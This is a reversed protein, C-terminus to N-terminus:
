GVEALIMRAVRLAGQGDVLRQGAAGMSDRAETNSLLSLLANGISDVIDNDNARGVVRLFGEKAFVQLQGDQNSAVRVAVTPCGVCALEYLTQGGASVAVDANLMLKHVADPAHILRVPYRANKAAIEIEALNDFFPGIIATVFFTGPLEGLLGLIRPMLNYIDDGGLTLLINQAVDRLTRKPIKWFEPRLISYETGLLFITDRSSSHYLLQCAHGDGNVVLQCPFPHPATDEIACVFFGASRLKSLYGAGEYDSDVVIANCRNAAAMQITQALDDAGWSEITDLTRGYFGFRTVRDKVKPENNCLFICAANFKHLAMALSLCRQLHGLGIRPGADVRFLVKMMPTVM